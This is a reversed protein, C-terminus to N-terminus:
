GEPVFSVCAHVLDDLADDFVQALEGACIDSTIGREGFTDVVSDLRRGPTATGYPGACTTKPAEFVGPDGAIAMVVLRSRDGGVASLLLQHEQVRTAGLGLTDEDTLMVVFLVSDDRLFGANEPAHLAEAANRSTTELTSTAMTAALCAFQDELDDSPAVVWPQALGCDTDPSPALAPQDRHTHLAIDDPEASVVGVHIDELSGLRVALADTFDRFVPPGDVGRLAAQEEAMSLSGDVVFLIDIHECGGPPQPVEPEDATECAHVVAPLFEQLAADLDLDDDWETHLAHPHLGLAFSHIEDADQGVTFSLARNRDGGAALRVFAEGALGPRAYMNNEDDDTAALMLNVSVTRDPSPWDDHQLFPFMLGTFMWDGDADTNSPVAHVGQYVCDLKPRASNRAKGDEGWVFTLGDAPGDPDLDCDWEPSQPTGSNPYVRVRAGTQETLDDLFRAVARRREIGYIPAQRGLVLSIDIADCLRTVGGTTSTSAAIGTSSSSTAAATSESAETTTSAQGTTPDASGTGEGSATPAPANNCGLLGTLLAATSVRVQV